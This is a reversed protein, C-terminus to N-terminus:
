LRFSLELFILDSADHIAWQLLTNVSDPLRISKGTFYQFAGIGIQTINPHFIIESVNSSVSLLGIFDPSYVCDNYLKYKSQVTDITYIVYSKLFSQFYIQTYNRSIFFTINMNNNDFSSWYIENLSSPFDFHTLNCNAFAYTQITKLDQCKNTDIATLFKCRYFACYGIYTLKYSLTVTKLTDRSKLFCYDTETGDRIRIVTSPIEFHVANEVSYLETNSNDTFLVKVNLRFLYNTM